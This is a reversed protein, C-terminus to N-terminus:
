EGLARPGERRILGAAQNFSDALHELVDDLTLVGFLEGADDVVPLRRFAGSRMMGVCETLSATQPAVTPKPTMVENIKSTAPALSKALARLTLDRDTVIGVPRKEEDIIVLSGVNRDNMRRAAVLVTEQPTATDVNRACFSGANM